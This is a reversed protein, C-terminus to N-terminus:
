DRMTGAKGHLWPQLSNDDSEARQSVIYHRVQQDLIVQQWQRDIATNVGKFQTDCIIFQPIGRRVM